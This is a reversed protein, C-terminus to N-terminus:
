ITSRAQFKAALSAAFWHLRLSRRKRHLWRRCHQVAQWRWEPAAIETITLISHRLSIDIFTKNLKKDGQRNSPRMSPAPSASASELTELLAVALPPKDVVTAVYVDTEPLPLTLALALPLM